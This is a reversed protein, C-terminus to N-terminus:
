ASLIRVNKLTTNTELQPIQSFRDEKLAKRLATLLDKRPTAGNTNRVLDCLFTTFAGGYKGDLLADAASQNSKCAAWLVQVRAPKIPNATKIAGKCPLM